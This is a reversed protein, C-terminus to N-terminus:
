ASRDKHNLYEESQQILTQIKNLDKQYAADELKTGLTGLEDFGYSKANGKIRHGFSQIKEFNEEKLLKKLEGIEKKRNKLYQPALDALQKELEAIADKQPPTAGQNEQTKLLQIHKTYTLIARRLQNPSIPKTLYSSFQSSVFRATGSRHDHASVAIVPTSPINESSEWERILQTATYGDMEPMQLDMLVIDFQSAKFKEVAARGDDAFTVRYPLSKLYAKVLFQNDKSDDVALVRLARQDHILEQDQTLPKPTPETAVINVQNEPETEELGQKIAELFQLPKVPKFLFNRIGYEALKEIDASPATTKILFIFPDTKLLGKRFKSFLQSLTEKSFDYDLIVIEKSKPNEEMKAIIKALNKPDKIHTTQGSCESILNTLTGSVAENPEIIFSNFSAIELNRIKERVTMRESTTLPISFHFTSGVNKQSEVALSGELLTVLDKSISLGLGTGGFRRRVTSDEQVFADFIRNLKEKDIGIGTDIVAFELRVDDIKRQLQVRLIVQGHRTFKVANGLLNSLIQQLRVPDGVLTLPVDAGLDLVLEIGNAHAGYVALDIAKELLKYLDFSISEVKISGSELSSFDLLNNLVELLGASSKQLISLYKKQHDSLQTEFLLNTMGLISNMPNRMEHGMRGLFESRIRLADYLSEVGPRFVYLAETALVFLTIFLLILEMRKFNSIQQELRHEYAKTAELLSNRYTSEQYLLDTSLSEMNKKSTSFSATSLSRFNKLISPFTAEIKNLTVILDPSSSSEESSTIGQSKLIEGSKEFQQALSEILETQIKIQSKATSLRLSLIAKKLNESEHVQRELLRIRLQDQTQHSLSRQIFLSVPYPM